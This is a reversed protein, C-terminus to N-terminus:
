LQCEMYPLAQYEAKNLGAYQKIHKGTTMSWSGWTRYLKGTKDKFLVTTKYSVLREGNDTMILCAKGNTNPLIYKKIM